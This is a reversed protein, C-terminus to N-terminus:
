KKPLTLIFSRPSAPWSARRPVKKKKKKPAFVQCSYFAKIVAPVRTEPFTQTEPKSACCLASLPFITSNHRPLPFSRPSVHSLVLFLSIGQHYSAVCVSTNGYIYDYM